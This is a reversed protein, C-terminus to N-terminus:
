RDDAGRVQEHLNPRFMRLNYLIYPRAHLTHYMRCSVSETPRAPPGSRRARGFLAAHDLPLALLGHRPACIKSQPHWGRRTHSRTEHPVADRPGGPLADGIKQSLCSLSLCDHLLHLYIPLDLGSVLGLKTHVRQKCNACFQRTARHAGRCSRVQSTRVLSQPSCM